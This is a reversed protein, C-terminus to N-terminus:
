GNEPGRQRGAELESELAGLRRAARLLDHKSADSIALLRRTISSKEDVSAELSTVRRHMQRLRESLDAFLEDDDV